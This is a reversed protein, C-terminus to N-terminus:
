VSKLSAASVEHERIIIIRHMTDNHGMGTPGANERLQHALLSVEPCHQVTEQPGSQLIGHPEQAAVAETGDLLQLGLHRPQLLLTINDSVESVVPPEVTEFCLAPIVAGAVV